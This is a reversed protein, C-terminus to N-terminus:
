SERASRPSESRTVDAIRCITAFERGIDSQFVDFLPPTMALFIHERHRLELFQPAVQCRKWFEIATKELDAALATLLEFIRSLEITPEAITGCLVNLVQASEISQGGSLGGSSEWFWSASM